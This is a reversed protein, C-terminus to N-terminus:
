INFIYIGLWDIIMWDVIGTVSGLIFYLIELNEEAM